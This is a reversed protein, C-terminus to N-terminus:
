FYRSRDPWNEKRRRSVPISLTETGGSVWCRFERRKKPLDTFVGDFVVRNGDKSIMSKPLKLDPFQRKIGDIFRLALAPVDRGTPSAGYFM